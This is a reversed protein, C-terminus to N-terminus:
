MGRGEIGSRVHELGERLLNGFLRHDLNPSLLSLSVSLLSCGLRKSGAAQRRYGLSLSPAEHKFNQNEKEDFQTGSKAEDEQGVQPFRQTGEVNVM